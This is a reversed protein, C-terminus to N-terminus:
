RAGVLALVGVAAVQVSPEPQQGLDALRHPLAATCAEDDADLQGTIVAHGTADVLLLGALDRLRQDRLHRDVVEGVALARVVAAQLHVQGVVAVGALGVPSQDRPELRQGRAHRHHAQPADGVRGLGLRNQGLAVGVHDAQPAREDDIRGPRELCLRALGALDAIADRAVGAPLGDVLTPGHAAVVVRAQGLGVLEVLRELWRWLRALHGHHAGANGSQLRGHSRSRASVLDLDPPARGLDTALGPEQGLQRQALRHRADVVM